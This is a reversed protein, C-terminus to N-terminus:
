EDYAAIQFIKLLFRPIVCWLFLAATLAAACRCHTLTTDVAAASRQYLLPTM